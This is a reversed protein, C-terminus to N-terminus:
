YYDHSPRSRLDAASKCSTTSHVRTPIIWYSEVRRASGAIAEAVTKMGVKPMKLIRIERRTLPLSRCTAIVNALSPQPVSTSTGDDVVSVNVTGAESAEAVEDTCLLSLISLVTYYYRKFFM